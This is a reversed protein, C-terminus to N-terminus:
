KEEVNAHHSVKSYDLRGVSPNSDMHARVLASLFSVPSISAPVDQPGKPKSPLRGRRGKLNDTRVVKFSVRFVM